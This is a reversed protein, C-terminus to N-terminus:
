PEVGHRLQVTGMTNLKLEAQGCKIPSDYVGGNGPVTM